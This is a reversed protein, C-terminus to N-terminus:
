FDYFLFTLLASFFHVFTKFKVRYINNDTKYLTFDGPISFLYFRMESKVAQRELGQKLATRKARYNIDYYANRRPAYGTYM